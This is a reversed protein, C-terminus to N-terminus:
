DGDRNGARIDDKRSEAPAQPTRSILRRIKGFLMKLSFLATLLGAILIQIFYSGTGPDIYAFSKPPSMLYALILVLLLRHLVSM